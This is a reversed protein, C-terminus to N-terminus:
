YITIFSQRFSREDYIFYVEPLNRKKRPFILEYLYGKGATIRELFKNDRFRFRSITNLM